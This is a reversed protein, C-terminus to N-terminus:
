TYEHRGGEHQRQQPRTRGGRRLGRPRGDATYDRRGVSGSQGAHRKTQDIHFGADLDADDAAVGAQERDAVERGSPVLQARFKGAELRPVDVADDEPVAFRQRKADAELHRRHPLADVHNTRGRAVGHLRELHALAARAIEALRHCRQGTEHLQPLPRDGVVDHHAPQLALVQRHQDVSLPDVAGARPVHIGRREVHVEGLHAADLHALPREVHLVLAARAADDVDHGLPRLRPPV